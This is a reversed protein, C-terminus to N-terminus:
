VAAVTFIVIETRRVGGIEFGMVMLLLIGEPMSPTRTPGSRFGRATGSYFAEFSSMSEDIYL